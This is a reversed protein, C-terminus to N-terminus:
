DYHARRSGIIIINKNFNLQITDDFTILAGVKEVMLVCYDSINDNNLKAVFVYNSFV